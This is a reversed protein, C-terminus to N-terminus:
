VQGVLGHDNLRLAYTSVHEEVLADEIKRLGYLRRHYLVTNPTGRAFGLKQRIMNTYKTTLRAIETDSPICLTLRYLIIPILVSNIIFVAQKDTLHKKGLLGVINDTTQTVIELTRKNSGDSSVWVGLTRAATTAPLAKIVSEPGEGFQITKPTDPPTNVVVLETKKPNVEISNLEFFELATDVIQQMDDRNGAIWDTDDVFALAAVRIEDETSPPPALRFQHHDQMEALTSMKYGCGLEEIECLLPDYAIRWFLPCEVGGQDLGCQPHYSETLGYPTIIKNLKRGAIKLCLDIFSEPLRIRRM